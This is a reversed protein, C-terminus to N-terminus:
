TQRKCQHCLSPRGAVAPPTYNRAGCTCRWYPAVPRHPAGTALSRMLSRQTRMFLDRHRRKIEALDDASSDPTAPPPSLPTSMVAEYTGEARREITEPTADLAALAMRAVQEATQAWTVDPAPEADGPILEHVFGLELCQQATLTTEDALLERIREPPLGTAEAYVEVALADHEALRAADRALSAANGVAALWAGHLFFHGTDYLLRRGAGMAAVTAASGAYEILATVPDPHARLSAHTAHAHDASGGHSAIFVRVPGAVRLHDAVQRHNFTPGGVEGVLRLVNVPERTTMM